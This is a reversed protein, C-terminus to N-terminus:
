ENYYGLVKTIYNQTEKFPPVGGHKRVNGSGANYAALALTIDGDYSQIKGAIYRAGGMICERADYANSVGLGKATEPMLQMIGMAGARSTTSPNFNSEAKAIAKLLKADVDYAIAAEKFYTNLEDSCVLSGSNYVDSIDISTGSTSQTQAESPSAAFAGATEASTSDTANAPIESAGEIPMPAIVNTLTSRFKMIAAADVSDPSVTGTSSEALMADITMAKLATQNLVLVDEFSEGSANESLTIKSTGSSTDMVPATYNTIKISM